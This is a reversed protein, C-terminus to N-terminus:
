NVAVNVGLADDIRDARSFLDRDFPWVPDYRWGQHLGYATNGWYVSGGSDGPAALRAAMQVLSCAAGNCVNLQIVQQCDQFSAIGNKCLSQGVVPAGVAAVDRRNVETANANGAYFDDPKAQPGTHWQFDGHAGIHGAQINLAVGDDSLTNSCHGATSIGSVGSSTRVVFGSTCVGSLSEGGMHETNSDTGGLAPLNSRVVSVTISDLIDGAGSDILKETAGARLDDLVSDAVGGDLAVVTTIQRTDFDFSTSADRVGATDFAAYHVTAIAKELELETFGLDTQVEVKVNAHSKGFTDIIALASDPAGAAFAVWAGGADVIEAGTFAEPAVERVTSVALAFNDNWAYRDIAEQLSMGHQGAVAKLDELEADSIPDDIQPQAVDPLPLSEGGAATDTQAVLVATMLTLMVVVSLGGRRVM